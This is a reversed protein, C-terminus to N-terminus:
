VAVSKPFGLSALSRSSCFFKQRKCGRLPIGRWFGWEALANRMHQM